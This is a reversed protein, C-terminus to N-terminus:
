PTRGVLSLTLQHLPHCLARSVMDTKAGYDSQFEYASINKREGDAHIKRIHGAACLEDLYRHTTLESIDSISQAIANVQMAGAM